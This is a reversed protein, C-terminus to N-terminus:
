KEDLHMRSGTARNQGFYKGSYPRDVDTTNAFILQGIEYGPSLIITNPSVNYLELTIRGCFGPDGWGATQINMGLRGISSRSQVFFSTDPPTQIYEMTTALAFKGPRLKFIEGDDLEYEKYDVQDGLRIGFLKKKPVLFTHGLRVNMSAPNVRIDKESMAFPIIRKRIERDGLIM